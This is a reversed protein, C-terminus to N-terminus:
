DRCARQVRALPGSSGRRTATPITSICCCMVRSTAPVALPTGGRRVLKPSVVPMMREGFLRVAGEPASADAMYRVALDVEGRGLDILRDDASVYVEVDPHRARFSALRPIVWLSAFSV